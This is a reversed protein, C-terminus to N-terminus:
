CVLAKLREAVDGALPEIGSQLATQCTEGDVEKACGTCADALGYLVGMTLSHEATPAPRLGADKAFSSQVAEAQECSARQSCQARGNPHRFASLRPNAGVWRVQDPYHRRLSRDKARLCRARAGPRQRGPLLSLM